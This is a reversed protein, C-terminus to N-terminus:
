QFMLREIDKDTEGFHRSLIYNAMRNRSVGHREAEKDILRVLEAGAVLSLTQYERSKAKKPIFM